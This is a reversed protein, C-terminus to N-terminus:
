IKKFTGNYIDRIKFLDEFSQQLCIRNMWSDYGDLDTMVTLTNTQRQIM